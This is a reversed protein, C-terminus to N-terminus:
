FCGLRCHTIKINLENAKKGILSYSQCLSEAIQMAVECTIKGDQAKKSLEDSVKKEVLVKEILSVLERIEVTKADSCINNHAYFKGNYFQDASYRIIIDAQQFLRSASPKRDKPNESDLFVVVDPKLFEVASNGEVVIGDMDDLGQLALPLVEDLREPPAQVWLVRKAGARLLRGTDKDDVDILETDETVSCYINSRTYKIAGWKDTKVGMFKAPKQKSLFSLLREALTTKGIASHAGGIGIILM